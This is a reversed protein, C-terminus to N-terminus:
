MEVSQSCPFSGTVQSHMTCPEMSSLNYSCHSRMFSDILLGSLLEVSCMLAGSSMNLITRERQASGEFVILLKHNSCRM